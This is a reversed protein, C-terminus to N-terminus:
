IFLSVKMIALDGNYGVKRNGGYYKSYILIEIKYLCPNSYQLTGIRLTLILDNFQKETVPNSKEFFCHAASFAYFENVLFGFCFVEGLVGDIEKLLKVMNYRLRTIVQQVDSEESTQPM